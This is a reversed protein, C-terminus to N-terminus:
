TQECHMPLAISLTLALQACMDVLGQGSDSPLQAALETARCLAAQAQRVAEQIADERAMGSSMIVQVINLTGQAMDIDLDSLDDAIQYALAFSEGARMAVVVSLPQQATIMVLELPLALLSGSKQSAIQVYDAVTLPKFLHNLDNAQGYILDATRSHMHSIMQGVDAQIHAVAEFAASLMLTGGCMATNADFHFWAAERGRRHTDQDQIDDHLLSANHILECATAIGVCVHDPLGLKLGASLALKARTRSGGGDLHYCILESLRKSDPRCTSRRMQVECAALLDPLRQTNPKKFSHM